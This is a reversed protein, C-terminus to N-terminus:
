AAAREIADLGIVRTLRALARELAEDLSASQRVGSERHFAKVRLVGENRDAKLDARGVLRDRWLFPLVYYGYVREHERKYVEIVHRFGFIRELFARDWVLNDFPSLLVAASPARPATRGAPLLVPAGGDEVAVRELVGDEVLADAHPRVRAIGGRLRWMEAVAAETLAGRAEVGRQTAWRIFEGDNPARGDLYEPPILREPLDYLRQFSSRGAIALRGASYLAELVVKAPKWNWMTGSGKGEFDRSAVPGCESVQALVHKTLEPERALVDGQWPHSHAHKAMRWRHMPYDEIPLLCSEHAWYEFIRGERMLHSVASEPFAGIRAGLAIRHSRDVTSISDLQVCALHQVIEVIEAPRATRARSTYAQAAVVRRRLEALTVTRM